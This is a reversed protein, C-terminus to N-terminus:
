SGIYAPYFTDQAIEGRNEAEDEYGDPRLFFYCFAHAADYAGDGNPTVSRLMSDVGALEGQMLEKKMFLLQPMLHSVVYGNTECWKELETRREDTWQCIGYGRHNYEEMRPCFLSECYINSLVGCSTVTSYHMEDKLFSFVVAEAHPYIVDVVRYSEDPIKGLHVIGKGKSTEVAVLPGDSEAGVAISANVPINHENLFFVIDGPKVEYAGGAHACETGSYVSFGNENVLHCYQRYALEEDTFTGCDVLDWKQALYLLFGMDKEPSYDDIVTICNQGADDIFEVGMSDQVVYYAPRYKLYPAKDAYVDVEISAFVGIILITLLIIKERIRM